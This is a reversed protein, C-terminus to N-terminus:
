GAHSAQSFEPNVSGLLDPIHIQEDHGLETSRREWVEWVEWASSIELQMQGVIQASLEEKSPETGPCNRSSTSGELGPFDMGLLLWQFTECIRSGSLGSSKKTRERCILFPDNRVRQLSFSKGSGRKGQLTM